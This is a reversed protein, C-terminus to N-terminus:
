NSVSTPSAAAGPPLDLIGAWREQFLSEATRLLSNEEAFLLPQARMWFSAADIVPSGMERAMEDYIGRLTQLCLEAAKFTLWRAGTLLLSLPGGLAEIIEPGVEVRADRVCDEYILTRGAYTKGADRTTASATLRTFTEELRGVAEDLRGADGAARAVARRAEELEALQALAGARLSEDAVLELRRRLTGEPCPELPIEFTWSILGKGVLETLIKYVEAEARVGLSPTRKLGAAIESASLRGECAALVAAYKPPLMLPRSRPLHLANGELRLYPVRRPAAWPRMEPRSALKDALADICWGEFYVNRAALLGGGTEVKLPEGSSALRAWGVPGFFGITDNKVCYRQLYSAVLEENQRRKFTRAGSPNRLLSEMGTHFARRNQWIVAERFRPDELTRNIEVSTEEAARGFSRGFDDRLSGLRSGEDRMKELAARAAEPLGEARPEKGEKLLRM